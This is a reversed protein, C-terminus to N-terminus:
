QRFNMLQGELRSRVLPWEEELVSFVVSDRVFGDPRTQYRRLVGERVAGLKELARHSRGNRADSKFQVRVAGLVEFARELMLLKAEPNVATGWFPKFLTTGIELAKHAPRMESYSIRGVIEGTELVRITWNLRGPEELTRQLYARTAELTPEEPGGRGQFEFTSPDYFKLWGEAHDLSLPELRIFRGELTSQEKWVSKTTM